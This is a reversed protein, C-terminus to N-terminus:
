TLITLSSPNVNWLGGTETNVVVKKRNVKTIVGQLNAGRRGIFSVKTGVKLGRKTIINLADRRARLLDYASRIEDATLDQIAEAVAVISM